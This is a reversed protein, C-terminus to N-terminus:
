LELARQRRLIIKQMEKYHREKERETENWCKVEAKIEKSYCKTLRQNFLIEYPDFMPEIGNEILIPLFGKKTAIGGAKHLDNLTNFQYYFVFVSPYCGIGYYHDSFYLLEIGSNIFEEILSLGLLYHSHGYDFLKMSNNKM